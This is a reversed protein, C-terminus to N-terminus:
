RAGGQQLKALRNEERRCAAVIGKWERAEGSRLYLDFRGAATERGDIEADLAQHARQHAVRFAAEASLKAMHVHYARKVLAVPPQPASM